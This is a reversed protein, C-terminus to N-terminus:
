PIPAYYVYHGIALLIMNNPTITFATAEGAPLPNLSRFQHRFTLKMSFHYVAQFVPDLMFLSPDPPAKYFIQSFRADQIIPGNQRGKRTDTYTVPEKCRTPSEKLTSYVCLTLHGDSHLLYLDDQNLAMDVVDQMPPIDNGFFLHPQNIVDRDRYIWVGNTQPDLVYLNGNDIKIARPAAWNASPPAPQNMTSLDDVKCFLLTGNNDIGLLTANMNNGRPMLTIDILPGVKPNPGCNFNPDREYGRGTLIVRIVNGGKANLLYLDTNNAIIRTIQNSEDLGGVIAPQFDLRDIQDIKDIAAIAEARLTQSQPNIQYSDAKDLYDLTTEWATKLEIPDTQKRAQQAATDAQKYYNQYQAVRGRQFYVYGGATAFTVAVAAAIFIMMSAPITFLSEDPLIKRLLSQLVNAIGKFLRIFGYGLWSFIGQIKRFNRTSGRRATKTKSTPTPLVGPQNQGTQSKSPLPPPFPPHSVGQKNFGATQRIPRTSPVFPAEPIGAISVTLDPKDTSTQDDPVQEVLLSQDPVPNSLLTSAQVQSSAETSTEEEQQPQDSTTVREVGTSVNTEPIVPSEEPLKKVQDPATPPVSIIPEPTAIPQSAPSPSKTRLFRLKGTGTQAQILVAKLESGAQGLLRRRMSEIGQNQAGQLVNDSWTPSPQASLLLLDNAHFEFQYYRLSIARGFGLGRGAIQPDYLHQTENATILFAHIPGCQAFTITDGRLIVMSLLGICQKGSNSSNLNLELLSKNLDEALTRLASTTAGPIKYYFRALRELMQEQQQEPLILNGTLTLHLILRDTSRGRATRNPPTVMYLGPLGPQELGEQRNLPLIFLDITTQSM